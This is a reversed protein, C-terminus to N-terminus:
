TVGACAACTPDSASVWAAWRIRGTRREQRLGGAASARWSDLLVERMDLCRDRDRVGIVGGGVANHVTCRMRASPATVSRGVAAWIKPRAPGQGVVEGPAPLERHRDDAGALEVPHGDCRDERGASWRCHSSGQRRASRPDGGPGILLVPVGAGAWRSKLLVTLVCPGPVGRLFSLLPSPEMKLRQLQLSGSVPRRRLPAAWLQVAGAAAPVGGRTRPSGFRVGAVGPRRAALQPPGAAEGHTLGGGGFEVVGTAQEVEGSGVLLPADLDGVHEVRALAACWQGVAVGDGFADLGPSGYVRVLGGGFAEGRPELSPAAQGLVGHAAVAVVDAEVQDRVETAHRDLFRSWRWMLAM